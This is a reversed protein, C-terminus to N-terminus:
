RMEFVEGRFGVQVSPSWSRDFRVWMEEHGVRLTLWHGRYRVRCRLGRLEKPLSPNLWLVDERFEIGTFCRQVLDITGAMAGLHIGESTTGGQIDGIDSRLAELFLPWAAERALRSLVWAHVVRSLTSGHSTRQLYHEVNQSVMDDSFSYGMRGFLERLEETSFLFFLMLVDAQKAAKYRNASEGEAKLIRDLRHIDGYRERYGDWDIEELDKWGDFQLIPGDKMPVFLRSAVDEWHDVEETPISLQEALEDRRDDSLLGLGEVATWLCWSAMVNTYANNDIGATDRDPYATHYEDPGVVGRIEYRGREPNFQAASAWYLAVEVLIEVGYTSLFEM